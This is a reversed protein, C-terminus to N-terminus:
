LPTSHCPYRGGVDGMSLAASPTLWAKTLQEIIMVRVDTALDGRAKSLKFLCGEFVVFREGDGEAIAWGVL